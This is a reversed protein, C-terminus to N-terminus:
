GARGSRCGAAAILAFLGWDLPEFGGLAVLLALQAAGVVAAASRLLTSRVGEFAFLPAAVAILVVFMGISLSGLVTLAEGALILWLSWGAGGILAILALWPWRQARAVGVLGAITFAMYIALMPVNATIGITLAPAALGGALGLLASPAGHRLSLFLAMATVAALGIFAALPSILQYANAAVLLAAYLTSIGAGALAQAVRPDDVRERNRYALEAGGILGFGFLLGCVLQVGPTFIRGFLGIDIAYKVILVGAIALTIGGAWIPLRRGFLEEFNISFTSSKSAPTVSPESPVPASEVDFGRAPPFRTLSPQVEPAREETAEELAVAEQHPEEAVEQPGRRRLSETSPRAAELQSLRVELRRIRGRSDFLIVGGVILVLAVIAEM